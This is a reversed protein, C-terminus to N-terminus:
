AATAVSPLLLAGTLAIWTKPQVSGSRKALARRHRFVRCGLHDATRQGPDARDGESKVGLGCAGTKCDSGTFGYRTHRRLRNRVIAGVWGKYQALSSPENHRRM